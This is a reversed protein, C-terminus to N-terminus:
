VNRKMQEELKYKFEISPERYIWYGCWDCLLREVYIPIVKKRGCWKCQRKLSEKAEATEFREKISLYQYADKM